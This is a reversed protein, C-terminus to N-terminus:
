FINALFWLLFFLQAIQTHFFNGRCAPLTSELQRLAPLEHTIPAVGKTVKLNSSPLATSAPTHSHYVFDM